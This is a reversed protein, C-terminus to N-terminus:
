SAMGQLLYWLAFLTSLHLLQDIGVTAYFLLREWRNFTRAKNEVILKRFGNWIYWDTLMHFSANLTALTIGFFANLDALGTLGFVFVLWHIFGHSALVKIDKIKGVSMRKPQMAYDATFHLCLLFIAMGVSIM